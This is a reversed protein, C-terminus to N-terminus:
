LAFTNMSGCQIVRLQYVHMTVNPVTLLPSPPAVARGAGFTVAWGDVALTGIVTNSHPKLPTMLPNIIVFM